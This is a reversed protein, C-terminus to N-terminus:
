LSNHRFWLVAEARLQANKITGELKYGGGQWTFPAEDPNQVVWIYRFSCWDPLWDSQGKQREYVLITSGKYEEQHVAEDSSM